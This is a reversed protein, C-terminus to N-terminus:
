INYISKLLNDMFGGLPLKQLTFYQRGINISLSVISNFLSEILDTSLNTLRISTLKCRSNSPLEHRSWLKNM